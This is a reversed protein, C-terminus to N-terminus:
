GSFRIKFLVIAMQYYQHHLKFDLWLDCFIWHLVGKEYGMLTLRTTLFIVNFRRGCRIAIIAFWTMILEPKPNATLCNNQPGDTECSFGQM